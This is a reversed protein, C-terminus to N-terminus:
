LQGWNERVKLWGNAWEDEEIRYEAWQILRAM